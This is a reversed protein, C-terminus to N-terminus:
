RHHSSVKPFNSMVKSVSEVPPPSVLPSGAKAFANRMALQHLNPKSPDSPRRLRRNEGGDGVTLAAQGCRRARVARIMDDHQTYLSHRRMGGDYRVEVHEPITDPFNSTAMGGLKLLRSTLAASDVGGDAQLIAPPLRSSPLSSAKSQMGETVDYAGVSCAADDDDDAAANISSKSSGVDADVSKQSSLSGVSV